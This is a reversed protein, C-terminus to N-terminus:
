TILRSLFCRYTSITTLLQKRFLLLFTNLRLKRVKNEKYIKTVLDTDRSRFKDIFYEMLEDRTDKSKIENKEEIKETNDSNEFEEKLREIDKELKSQFSSCLNCKAVIIALWM